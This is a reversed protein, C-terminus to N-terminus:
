DEHSRVWARLLAADAETLALFAFGNGMIAEGQDADVVSVVQAQVALPDHVGPLNFQLQMRTGLPYPDPTEVFIGEASVNSCNHFDLREGVREETWVRMAVRPHRRRQEQRQDLDLDDQPAAYGRNRRRDHPDQVNQM